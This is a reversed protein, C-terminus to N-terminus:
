SVLQRRGHLVQTFAGRLTGEVKVSTGLCTLVLIPEERIRSNLWM